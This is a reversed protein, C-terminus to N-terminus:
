DKNLLAVTILDNIYSKTRGFDDATVFVDTALAQFFNISADLPSLEELESIHPSSLENIHWAECSIFDNSLDTIMESLICWLNPCHAGGLTLYQFFLAIGCFITIRKSALSASMTGRRYASKMDVKSM